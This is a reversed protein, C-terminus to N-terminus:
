SFKEGLNPKQTHTEITTAETALLLVHWYRVLKFVHVFRNLQARQNHVDEVQTWRWSQHGKESDWTTNPMHKGFGDSNSLLRKFAFMSCYICRVNGYLDGNRYGGM